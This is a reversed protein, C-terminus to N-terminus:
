FLIDELARKPVCHVGDGDRHYVISGEPGLPEIRVEEAPLGLALILVVDLGPPTSLTKDIAEKSFSMVICGGFGAECAALMITQAAIGADYPARVAIGEDCAVIIYATPREGESPGDWGELYGAWRCSACVEERTGDDTVIRYRLPQLNRASATLRAADIWSTLLMRDPAPEAKFRRFTRCSAALERITMREEKSFTKGKM